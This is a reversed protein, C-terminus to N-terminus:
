MSTSSVIASPSLTQTRQDQVPLYVAVAQANRGGARGDEDGANGDESDRAALKDFAPLVPVHQPHHLLDLAAAFRGGVDARGLAEEQVVLVCRFGNERVEWYLRM